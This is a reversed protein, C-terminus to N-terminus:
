EESMLKTLMAEDPAVTNLVASALIIKPSEPVFVRAEFVGMRDDFYTKIAVIQLKQGLVFHACALKLGRVSLLLGIGPQTSAGDCYGAYAAVTQAMLEIAILADVGARDAQYFSNDEDMRAECTISDTKVSLISDVFKMAGRHPIYREISEIM